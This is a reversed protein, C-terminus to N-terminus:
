KVCHQGRAEEASSGHGPVVRGAVRPNVLGTLTGEGDWAVPDPKLLRLCEYMFCTAELPLPHPSPTVALSEMTGEM